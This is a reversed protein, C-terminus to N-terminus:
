AKILPLPLQPAPPHVRPKMAEFLQNGGALPRASAAQEAIWPSYEFINALAAVFEDKSCANLDSLTKQSMTDQSDSTRHAPRWIRFIPTGTSRSRCGRRYGCGSM